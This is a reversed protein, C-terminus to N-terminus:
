NTKIILSDKNGLNDIAKLQWVYDGSGVVVTTIPVTGVVRNNGLDKWEWVVIRGTGDGGIVRSQSADLTVEKQNSVRSTTCGFFLISLLALRM